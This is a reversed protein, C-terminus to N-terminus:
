CGWDGGMKALDSIQALPRVGTLRLLRAAAVWTCNGTTSFADVAPVLSVAWRAARAAPGLIMLLRLADKGYGWGGQKVGDGIRLIDVFGAGVTTTLKNISYLTSAAVYVGVNRYWPSDNYVWASLKKDVWHNEMDKQKDFWDAVATLKWM